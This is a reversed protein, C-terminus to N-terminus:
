LLCLQLNKINPHYGETKNKVDPKPKPISLMKLQLQCIHTCQISKWTYATNLHSRCLRPRWGHSSERSGGLRVTELPPWGLFGHGTKNKLFDLGVLSLFQFYGIESCHQRLGEIESELNKSCAHNFLLESVISAVPQIVQFQKILRWHKKM